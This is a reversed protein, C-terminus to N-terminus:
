LITCDLCKHKKYVIMEFSKRNHKCYCSDTINLNKEKKSILNLLYNFSEKININNKVSIDFYKLKLDDCYKTAEEISVVRDKDLDSKNGLIIISLDKYECHKKLDQIWKQINNFTNYNTVDFMIICGNSDRYYYRIISKFAEQGATDWFYNKITKNKITIYLVGFDVGITTPKNNKFDNHLLKNFYSTKGTMSDGILIYKYKYDVTM